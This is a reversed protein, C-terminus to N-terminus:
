LPYPATRKWYTYIARRHANDGAANRWQAGNWPSLWIGDPQFPFVAPGYMTTSMLGSVCLGQDRVQEASLRVRAGRQMYNTTLIKKRGTRPNTKSDQRYTASLVMERMLKKLSWKYQHMLQYSLYDLLERHTPQIGPTGLDELTEALGGGFFQEWVRNVM